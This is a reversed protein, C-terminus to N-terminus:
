QYDTPGECVPDRPTALRWREGAIVVSDADDPEAKVVRTAIWSGKSPAEIKLGKTIGRHSGQHGLM